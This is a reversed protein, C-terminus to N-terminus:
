LRLAGDKDFEGWKNVTDDDEQLRPHAVGEVHEEDREGGHVGEEDDEGYPVVRDGPPHAKYKNIYM